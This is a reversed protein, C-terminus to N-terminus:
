KGIYELLERLSAPEFGSGSGSASGSGACAGDAVALAKELRLRDEMQAACLVESRVRWGSVEARGLAGCQPCAVSMIFRGSLPSGNYSWAYARGSCGCEASFLEPHELSCRLLTGLHYPPPAIHTVMGAVHYSMDLPLPIFYFRDIDRWQSFSALLEAAHERYLTVEEAQPAKVSGGPTPIFDKAM